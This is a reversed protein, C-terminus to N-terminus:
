DTLETLVAKEYDGYLHTTTRILEHRAEAIGAFREAIPAQMVESATLGADASEKLLQDLWALYDQTQRLPSLTQSVPGHGPVLHDFPREALTDLERHWQMLGPTHPTTLARNFFVMDSAFLVGSTHDMIVLDAGTHGTMAILELVHGGISVKGPAVTKPPIVVETGKMWHGVLRYMNDAFADGQAKLLTITGPLAHLLEADFAQNGFVHDPHHHTLFVRVVAKDTVEAIAANLAQGFQWSPGTDIVVVGEDTVIFATNVIHGGNERSFNERRGEVVWVNDAIEVPELSYSTVPSTATATLPFWFIAQCIMFLWLTTNVGPRKHSLNLAKFPRNKLLSPSPLGSYSVSM